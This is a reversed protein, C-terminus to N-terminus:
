FLVGLLAKLIDDLPMMTLALPLIPALTTAGMLVLGDRTFPVLRMSRVVEFSNALDALSQIDSSGVLPEDVPKGHLWKVHFARVYDEALEGYELGGSRKAAALQSSFALLPGLTLGLMFVVVAAIEFKFQPLTAGLYFIRDAILGALLAGHAAALPSFAQLTGALFGLGGVRDPHSPILVLKIRSVQYLFRAWILIRFYWRILLFQFLPLSVYCYWAGALSLRAGERSSTAYWTAADLSMYHRWAIVGFVYIVAIIAVEVLVSNRLRMASGLAANFSAVANEPILRRKLFQAVIPRMRQHVMLEAIVLLPLAVLFRAHVEVDRVFPVAVSGALAQGGVFSLVLLPLWALLVFAIIRRHVVHLADDSLHAAILLQFLPGGLVLSFGGRDKTMGDDLPLASSQENM